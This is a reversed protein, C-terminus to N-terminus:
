RICVIGTKNTKDQTENKYIQTISTYKHQSQSLCKHQEALVNIFVWQFSNLQITDVTQSMLRWDAGLDEEEEETPGPPEHGWIYRLWHPKNYKGQKLHEL